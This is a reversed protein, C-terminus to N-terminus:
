QWHDIHRHSRSGSWLILSIVGLMLTSPEPIAERYLMVGIFPRRSFDFGAGISLGASSPTGHPNWIFTATKQCPCASPPPPSLEDVLGMAYLTLGGGTEFTEGLFDILERTATGNIDAAHTTIDIGASQALARVDDGTAVAFGAFRGGPGLETVVSDYLPNPLTTVDTTEMVDLWERQNADDYTLLGDGATKWDREFVAARVTRASIMLTVVLFTAPLCGVQFKRKM